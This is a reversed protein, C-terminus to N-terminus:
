PTWVRRRDLPCLFSFFSSGAQFFVGCAFPDLSRFYQNGYLPFFLFRPFAENNTTCLAFFVGFPFFSKGLLSPALLLVTLSLRAFFFSSQMDPVRGAEGECSVKEPSLFSLDLPRQPFTPIFLFVGAIARV